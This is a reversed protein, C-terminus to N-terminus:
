QVTQRSFKRRKAKRRFGRGKFVFLKLIMMSSRRSQLGKMPTIRTSSWFAKSLTAEAKERTEVAVKDYENLTDQKKQSLDDKTKTKPVFVLGEEKYKPHEKEM